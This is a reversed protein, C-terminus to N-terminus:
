LLKVMEKSSRARIVPIHQSLANRKGITYPRKNDKLKKKFPYAGLVGNKRGVIYRLVGKGTRWYVDILFGERKAIENIRTALMVM